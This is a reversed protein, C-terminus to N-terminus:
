AARLHLGRASNATLLADIREVDTPRSYLHGQGYMCGLGVLRDHQGAVEIGEAVTILGLTTALDTILRAFAWEQGDEQEIGDIFPKAIKLIDVPFRRLYRLSSYGTGFDDIAIQVGLERLEALLASRRRPTTCCTRRPSSSSSRPPPSATARRAGARHREVLSTRRAARALHQRTVQLDAHGPHRARWGALQACADRLIASGIEQIVGASQALPIFM